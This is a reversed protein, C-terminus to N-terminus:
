ISLDGFEMDDIAKPDLIKIQGRQTEIIGQDRLRGMARLTSEPTTGAIESIEVSTFHLPSGFKGHLTSLVRMIRNKVNKEMFELIRSNASDFALGIIQLLNSIIAPHNEVFSIFDAAKVM